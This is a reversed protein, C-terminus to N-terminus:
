WMVYSCRPLLRVCRNALHLMLCEGVRFADNECHQASSCVEGAENLALYFGSFSRFSFVGPEREEARMMSMLDCLMRLRRFMGVVFCENPHIGGKVGVTGDADVSLFRHANRFAIINDHYLLPELTRIIAM